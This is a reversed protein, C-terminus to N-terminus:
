SVTEAVIKRDHCVGWDIGVDEGYEPWHDCLPIFLAFEHQRIM